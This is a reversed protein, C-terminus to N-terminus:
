KGGPALQLSEDFAADKEGDGELAEIAAEDEDPRELRQLRRSRRRRVAADIFVAVFLTLVIGAAAVVILLRILSAYDPVAVTNNTIVLLRVQDSPKAQVENQLTQLKTTALDVVSNLTSFAGAPSTDSAQVQLVSGSVAADQQVTYKAKSGRPIISQVSESDTVSRELVGAVVDLGGLYLFPNGTQTKGTVTVSSTPPLLLISAKVDYALPVFRLALVVFGATILLGAILVYWRRGLAHLSASLDV